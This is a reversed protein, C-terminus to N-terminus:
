PAMVVDRVPADDSPTSHAERVPLPTADFGEQGEPVQSEVEIRSMATLLDRQGHSNKSLVVEKMRLFAREYDVAPM